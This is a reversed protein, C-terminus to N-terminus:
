RPPYHASIVAASADDIVVIANMGFSDANSIVTWRVAGFLWFRHARRARVPPRFDWGRAVALAQAIAIAETDTM